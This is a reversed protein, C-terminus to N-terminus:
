FKLENIQKTLETLNFPKKLIFDINMGEEMSKIEEGRGTIIGIKPRKELKNMADIVDYGFIDPMALDCLVLDFDESKVISIADTGNNVTKVKNGFRLFFRDLVNCLADEDDVVLIRLNKKNLIQESEHTTILSSSGNTTPFQLTFEAGKGVESEVEINGGHRSIIGYALSMGLGTGFAKKTTFFPDFIYRKTEESMGDGTDAISVFVTNGGSWTSFSINGGNPMADLANNIINIFVERLESPNCMISSVSKMGDKNIQYDIGNSQAENKWRPSTFDISQIILDRIDFAVLGDVGNETKTFKLMKSSINIGDDIAMMITCLSERLGEDGKYTEKLLQVNGSIIALINNLEHSVGSAL